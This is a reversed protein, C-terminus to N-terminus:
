RGSVRPSNRRMALVRTKLRFWMPPGGQAKWRAVAMAADKEIRVRLEEPYTSARQAWVNKGVEARITM